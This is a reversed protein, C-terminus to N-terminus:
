QSAVPTLKLVQAVFRHVPDSGKHWEGVWWGDTGQMSLFEGSDNPSALELTIRGYLRDGIPQVYIDTSHYPMQGPVPDTTPWKPCPIGPGPTWSVLNGDDIAISVQQPEGFNDYIAAGGKAGTKVIITGLVYRAPADYQITCPAAQNSVMGGDGCGEGSMTFSFSEMTVFEWVDNATASSAIAISFVSAHIAISAM